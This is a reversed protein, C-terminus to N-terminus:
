VNKGEKDHNYYEAYKKRHAAAEPSEQTTSTTQNDLKIFGQRDWYLITHYDSSHDKRWQKLGKSGIKLNFFEIIQELNIFKEKLKEHEDDSLEVFQGYLKKEVEKKSGNIDEKENENENGMHNDYSKCIIKKRKKEKKTKGKKNNSRSESYERRKNIEYELRLNYYLGDDDKIYKKWIDNDQSKCIFIMHEEELHGTLHQACMLRVYKGVQEDTFFMTGSLFNDSYFLFATDKM